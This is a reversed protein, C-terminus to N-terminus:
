PTLPRENLLRAREIVERLSRSREIQLWGDLIAALAASDRMGRDALALALDARSKRAREPQDQREPDTQLVALMLPEFAEFPGMRGEEEHAEGGESFEGVKSAPAPERMGTASPNETTGEQEKDHGQADKDFQASGKGKPRSLVFKKTEEYLVVEIETAQVSRAKRVIKMCPDLVKPDAHTRLLKFLCSVIASTTAEVVSSFSETLLLDICYHSKKEGIIWLREVPLISM